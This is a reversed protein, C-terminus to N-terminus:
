IIQLYIGNCLIVSNYVSHNLMQKLIIMFSQVM